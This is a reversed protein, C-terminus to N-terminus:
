PSCNPPRASCVASATRRRSCRAPVTRAVCAWRWRRTAPRPAARRREAATASERAATLGAEAEALERKALDDREALEADGADLGDVEDKLAEYEEQAAVAREQAEDRAAALRDIEALASGARSRAANVQGNLRALGERRDAIARAM